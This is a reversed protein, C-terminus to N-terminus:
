RGISSASAVIAPRKWSRQRGDCTRVIRSWRFQHVPCSELHTIWRRGHTVEHALCVNNKGGKFLLNKFSQAGDPEAITRKPDNGEGNAVKTGRATLNDSEKLVATSRKAQAIADNVNTYRFEQYCFYEAPVRTVAYKRMLVEDETESSAPLNSEQSSQNSQAREAQAVADALNTYRFERWHFRNLPVRTISYAAIEEEVKPGLTQGPREHNASADNM